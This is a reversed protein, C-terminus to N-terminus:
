PIRFQALHKAHAIADFADLGSTALYDIEHDAPYHKLVRSAYRRVERPVRPTAKPDLLDFLLRRAAHIARVREHPLTM